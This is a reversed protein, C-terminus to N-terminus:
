SQFSRTFHVLSRTVWILKEGNAGPNLPDANKCYPQLLVGSAESCAKFLQKSGPQPEPNWWWSPLLMLAPLESPWSGSYIFTQSCQLTSTWLLDCGLHKATAPLSWAAWFSRGNFNPILPFIWHLIHSSHLEEFLMSLFLSICLCSMSIKSVLFARSWFISSSSSCTRCDQLSPGLWTRWGRYCSMGATGGVATNKSTM